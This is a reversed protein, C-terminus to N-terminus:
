QRSLAGHRHIGQAYLEKAELKKTPFVLKRVQAVLQVLGDPRTLKEHGMDMAVQLADGRLADIVMNAAKVPKEDEAQVMRARLMTKFEWQHFTTPRGDYVTVGAKTEDVVTTGARYALSSLAM